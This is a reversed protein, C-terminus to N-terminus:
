KKLQQMMYRRFEARDQEDGSRGVSRLFADGMLPEAACLLNLMAVRFQRQKKSGGTAQNVWNEFMGSGQNPVGAFALYMALIM